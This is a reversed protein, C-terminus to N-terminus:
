LWQKLQEAESKPINGNVLLRDVFKVIFKEDDNRQHIHIHDM